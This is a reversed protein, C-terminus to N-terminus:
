PSTLRIAFPTVNAEILGAVITFSISIVVLILYDWVDQKTLFDGGRLHRILVQPMKFGAAGALIIGPIEFVSHPFLRAAANAVSFYKPGLFLISGMVIGDLVLLYFSTAGFSLFGIYSLGLSKLNHIIFFSASAPSAYTDQHLIMRTGDWAAIIIGIITAAVFVVLASVVCSINSYLFDRYQFKTKIYNLM